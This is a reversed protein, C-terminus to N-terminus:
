GRRLRRFLTRVGPHSLRWALARARRQRGFHVSSPRQNYAQLWWGEGYPEVPRATTRMFFATNAVVEILDWMADAKLFRYMNAITRIQVDDIVLLGGSRIHPYVAWYELEPFPYAHPGDLYAVDIPGDFQHHLLSRQTPGIVFEVTGAHLLPSNRVAQLSDGDGTDEQTFVVHRSSLHSLLLTTKGTGTEVTLQAEEASIHRHLGDLVVPPVSGAGHWDDPLAAIDALLGSRDLYAM